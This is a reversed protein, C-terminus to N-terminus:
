VSPLTISSPRTPLPSRTSEPASTGPRGSCGERPMELGIWAPSGRDRGPKAAMECIVSAAACESGSQRSVPDGACVKDGFHINDNRFTQKNGSASMEVLWTCYRCWLPRLRRESSKACIAM